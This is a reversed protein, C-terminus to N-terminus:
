MRGIAQCRISRAERGGAAQPNIEGQLQQGPFGQRLPDLPARQGQAVGQLGGEADEGGKLGHVPAADDV